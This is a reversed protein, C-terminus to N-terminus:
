LYEGDLPLPYCDDRGTDLLAAQSESIKRNKTWAVRRIYRKGDARDWGLVVTTGDMAFVSGHGAGTFTMRGLYAGKETFRGVHPTERGGSGSVGTETNMVWWNGASWVVGQCKFPYEM